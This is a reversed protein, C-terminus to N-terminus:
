PAILEQLQKRVNAEGQEDSTIGLMMDKPRPRDRRPYSVEAIIEGSIERKRM